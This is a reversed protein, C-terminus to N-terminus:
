AADVSEAPAELGLEIRAVRMEEPTYKRAKVGLAAAIDASGLSRAIPSGALIGSIVERYADSWHMCHHAAYDDITEFGRERAWKTVIERGGLQMEQDRAAVHEARAARAEPSPLYLPEAAERMERQAEIALRRVDAPTPRRSEARRWRGCAESVIEPGFERLDALWDEIQAQRTEPPDAATWYHGLLRSITAAIQRNATSPM